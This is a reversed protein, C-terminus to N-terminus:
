VHEVIAEMINKKIDLLNESNNTIENMQNAMSTNATLM